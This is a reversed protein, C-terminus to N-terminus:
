CMGAETLGASRKRTEGHMLRRERKYASESGAFTPPFAAIQTCRPSQSAIIGEVVGRVTRATRRDGILPALRELHAAVRERKVDM